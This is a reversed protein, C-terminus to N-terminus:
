ESQDQLPRQLASVILLLHEKLLKEREIMIGEVASSTIVNNILSDEYRRHDRLYPNTEKLPKAAAVRHVKDEM